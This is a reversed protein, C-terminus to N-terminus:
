LFFIGDTNCMNNYYQIVFRYYFNSLVISYLTSVFFPYVKLSVKRTYTLLKESKKVVTGKEKTTGKNQAQLALEVLKRSRSSSM